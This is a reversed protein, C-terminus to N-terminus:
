LEYAASENNVLRPGDHHQEEDSEDNIDSIFM